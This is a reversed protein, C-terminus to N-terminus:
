DHAPTIKVAGSGFEPDVHSDAIVPIMRDVFPHALETGVLHAYREDDPHVAVATDGLMTEMRTTAVVIHPESADMSGYRFGVLEGDVEEYKVEIDSIATQLVPSWNVLREARYILGEDYLRKFMTRVARSLGDDLTFRERSWDVGDGLKRMQGGITGGSTAKWQWVREIFAERGIDDRTLGESALQKEVVSQTAIG